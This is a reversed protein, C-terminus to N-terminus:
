KKDGGQKADDDEPLGVLRLVAGTAEKLKEAFGGPRNPVFAWAPHGEWAERVRDDNM